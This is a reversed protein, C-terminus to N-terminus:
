QGGKHIVWSKYHIHSSLNLYSWSEIFKSNLELLFNSLSSVWLWLEINVQIRLNNKKYFQRQYSTTKWHSYATLCSIIFVIGNKMTCTVRPLGITHPRSSQFVGPTCINLNPYYCSVIRLHLDLKQTWQYFLVKNWNIWFYIFFILACERTNKKILLHYTNLKWLVYRFHSISLYFSCM